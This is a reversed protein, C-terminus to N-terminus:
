ADLLALAEAHELLLGEAVCEGEDEGEFVADKLTLALGLSVAAADNLMEDALEDADGETDSVSVADNAAELLSLGDTDPEVVDAGEDDASLLKDCVVAKEELTLVDALALTDFM